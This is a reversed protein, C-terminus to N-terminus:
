NEKSENKTISWFFGNLLGLLVMIFPHIPAKPMTIFSLVLVIIGSVIVVWIRNKLERVWKLVPATFHSVLTGLAYPLFMFAKCGLWIRYSITAEWSKTIAVIIDFTIYFVLGIIMLVSTVKPKIKM